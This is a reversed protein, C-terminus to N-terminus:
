FGLWGKEGVWSNDLTYQWRYRMTKVDTDCSHLSDQLFHFVGFTAHHQEDILGPLPESSHGRTKGTCCIPNASQLLPKSESNWPTVLDVPSGYAVVSIDSDLSFRHNNYETNMQIGWEVPGCRFCVADRKGSWACKNIPAPLVSPAMSAALKSVGPHPLQIITLTAYLYHNNILTKPRLLEHNIM